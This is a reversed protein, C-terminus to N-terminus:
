LNIVPNSHGFGCSARQDIQTGLPHWPTKRMAENVVFRGKSYTKQSMKTEKQTCNPSYEELQKVFVGNGVAQPPV